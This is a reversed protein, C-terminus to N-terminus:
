IHILSLIPPPPTPPPPPGASANGLANPSSSSSKTPNERKEYFIAKFASRFKSLRNAEDSATAPYVVNYHVVLDGFTSGALTKPIGMGKVRDPTAPSMYKERSLELSEGYLTMSKTFGCLIDALQIDVNIHVDGASYEIQIGRKSSLVYFFKLHVDSRKDVDIFYSGHGALVYVYGDRVGAPIRVDMSKKSSRVRRGDCARCIREPSRVMSGKGQCSPCSLQAVMFPTIAQNIIGSGGCTVCEIIDMKPDKVGHGDCVDCKEVLDLDIRKMGGARIEDLSLPVEMVVPQLNQNQSHRGRGEDGHLHQSAFNGFLDNFIDAMGMGGFGGFGGFPNGDGQEDNIQGTADYRRRKDADSLIAYAHSIEKFKTEAELKLDPDQVKDPHHRMALQRYAKKIDAESSDPEIGLVGYLAFRNGADTM